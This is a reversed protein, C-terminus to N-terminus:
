GAATGTAPRTAPTPPASRRPRTSRGTTRDTATQEIAAPDTATHAAAGLTTLYGTGAPSLRYLHRPPRGRPPDQEWGTEVLGREALRILIPYITGPKLNLSRCVDYGHTWHSGHAALEDLVALTQPSPRRTGM